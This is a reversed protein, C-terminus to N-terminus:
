KTGSARRAAAERGVDGPAYHGVVDAWHAGATRYPEQDAPGRQRLLVIGRDYGVGVIHGRALTAIPERPDLGEVWAFRGWVEGGRAAVLEALRRAMPRGKTGNAQITDLEQGQRRPDPRGAFVIEVAERLVAEAELDLQPGADLNGWPDLWGAFNPHRVEGSLHDAITQSVSRADTRPSRKRRPLPNIANLM